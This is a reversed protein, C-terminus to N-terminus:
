LGLMDAWNYVRERLIQNSANRIIFKIQRRIKPDGGIQNRVDFRASNTLPDFILINTLNIEPDTFLDNNGYQVTLRMGSAPVIEGRYSLGRGPQWILTRDIVGVWTGVAPDFATAVDVAEAYLVHEGVMHGVIAVFTGDPVAGSMLYERSLPSGALGTIGLPMRPDQNMLVLVNGIVLSDPTQFDGLAAGRLNGILVNEAMLVHGLFGKVPFDPIAFERGKADVYISGQAIVTAGSSVPYRWFRRPPLQSGTPFGGTETRIGILGLFNAPLIGPQYNLFANRAQFFFNDELRRETNPDRDIDAVAASRAESTSFLSRAPGLRLVGASGSTDYVVDRVSANFDSLRDFTAATIPGLSVEESNVIETNGLEFLQGNLTAPVTVRYGNVFLQRSPVDIDWLPGEVSFTEQPIKLNVVTGDHLVAQQAEAAAVLALAAIGASVFSRM